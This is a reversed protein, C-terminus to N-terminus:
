LLKFNIVVHNQFRTGGVRGFRVVKVGVLKGVDKLLRTLKGSNRFLYYLGTMLETVQQFAPESKYADKIALELRHSVCHITMLHPRGDNKLYTCVGPPYSPIFFRIYIIDNTKELSHINLIKTIDEIKLAQINNSKKFPFINM